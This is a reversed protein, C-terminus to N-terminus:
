DWFFYCTLDPYNCDCSTANNTDAFSEVEYLEQISRVRGSITDITVRADDRTGGVAYGGMVLGPHKECLSVLEGFTPAENQKTYPNAYGTNILKHATEPTMGDFSDIEAYDDPIYEKSGKRIINEREKLEQRSLIRFYKKNLLSDLLRM